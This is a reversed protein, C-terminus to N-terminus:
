ENTTNIVSGDVGNMALLIEPNDSKYYVKGSEKGNYEVNGWLTIGPVYYYSEDTYPVKVRILNYDLETVTVVCCVEERIQDVFKGYSFAYRDSFMLKTKSLEMLEDLSMVVVNDNVVNKIDVPSYLMLSILEGNPSFKFNADTLYYNSAYLEDSKLNSLQPRRMAEMGNLVPVADVYVVFEPTDGYYTTGVYCRDIKWQGLEMESLMKAAKEQIAKVQEETPESTRCLKAYFYSGDIRDPCLGDTITVTIMSIKFDSKNRKSVRFRYPIGEIKVQASIEDNDNSLDMGERDEPPLSYEASKRFTWQCPIHPNEEPMMEYKQTYIEIFSKVLGVVDNGPKEGYLKFIEEESTFQSWRNLKELIESKSYNELINPEAEYFDADGFLVHAVREADEGTLFHPVVEVVPMDGATVTKDIEFRFEVSGDTSFFIDTYKAAQTANKDHHEVDSIAINADFTGDNKSIVPNRAPNAACASLAFM